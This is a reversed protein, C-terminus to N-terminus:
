ALALAYAQHVGCRCPEVRHSVLDSEVVSIRQRIIPKDERWADLHLPSGQLAVIGGGTLLERM